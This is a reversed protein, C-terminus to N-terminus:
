RVNFLYSIQYFKEIVIKLLIDGILYPLGQNLQVIGSCLYLFFFFITLAYRFPKENGTKIHESLNLISDFTKQEDCCEQSTLFDLVIKMQSSDLDGTQLSDM